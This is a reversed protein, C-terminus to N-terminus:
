YSKKVNVKRKEIKQTRGFSRSQKRTQRDTQKLVQKWDIQKSQSYRVQQLNQMLNQTFLGKYATNGPKNSLITINGSTGLFLKQYANDPIVELSTMSQGQVVPSQGANRNNLNANNYRNYSARQSGNDVMVLKLAANSYNLANNLRNISANLKENSKGLYYVWVVDNSNLQQTGLLSGWEQTVFAQTGNKTSALQMGTQTAVDRGVKMLTYYNLNAEDTFVWLHLKGPTRYLSKAKPDIFDATPQVSRGKSYAHQNSKNKPKGVGAKKRRKASRTAIVVSEREAIEALKKSAIKAVDKKDAKFSPMSNSGEKKKEPALRITPPPPVSLSIDDKVEIDEENADGGDIKRAEPAESKKESKGNGLAIVSDTMLNANGKIDMDKRGTEAANEDSNTAVTEEAKKLMQTSSQAAKDNAAANATKSTKEAGTSDLLLPISFVMLLAVCAAVSIGVINRRRALAVTKAQTNALTGRLAEESEVMLNELYPRDKQEQAYFGKLGEVTLQLTEDQQMQQEFLATDEASLRGDIYDLIIDQDFYDIHENGEIDKM